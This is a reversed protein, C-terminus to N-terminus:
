RADELVRRAFESPVLGDATGAGAAPGSVAPKAYERLLSRPTRLWAAARSLMGSISGGPLYGISLALVAIILESAGQTKFVANLGVYAVAGIVAGSLSGVGAVIVVMFWRLSSFPDFTFFSFARVEQSLLAGGIGAMFASAGFIFLKYARLDIGVSRAAVESDRVAALVRGLRGSKLNRALLLMLGVCVLEFFYFPKDGSLSLGFLGPRPADLGGPGGAFTNSTFVFSYALVGIALTTLGLFVGRRRLAPYGTIIGLVTAGIGGIVMAPIVPLNWQNIVRSSVFAGFGAFAAQGLTIHGSFGTVCVISAFIIIYALAQHAYTMNHASMVFPVVVAVAAAGIVLAATPVAQQRRRGGLARSVLGSRAGEEGVEDLTRFFVLAGFLILVSLNPKLEGVANTIGSPLHWHVFPLERPNFRTLLSQLVGLLLIGAAVAVPLSVLRAVVVISFSEIVLLTLHFPDLGGARQALLVGTLGALGTGMAWALASVRDANVASLESLERRDVVARIETGIHTFRFLVWLGVSVVGVLVVEVLQDIGMYLDNGFDIARSPIIHPGERTTGTWIAYAAGLCILFVGLTAVLKESTSARKRQLPRFVLRELLLGIGPGVVLLVLPAAIALSWHWEHNLQWLVYAVIMAIAGHAFNFIGTAKYTLVVGMGALSYV